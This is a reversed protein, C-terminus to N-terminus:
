QQRLRDMAFKSIQLGERIQFAPLKRDFVASLQQIIKEPEKRLLAPFPDLGIKGVLLHDHIPLDPGSEVVSEHFPIHQENQGLAHTAHANRVSPLAPFKM